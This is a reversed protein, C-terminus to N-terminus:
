STEEKKKHDEAHPLPEMNVEKARAITKIFTIEKGVEIEIVTSRRIDVPLTFNSTMTKFPSQEILGSGNIYVIDGATADYCLMRRERM